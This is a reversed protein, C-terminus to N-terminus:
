ENSSGRKRQEALRQRRLMAAAQHITPKHRRRPWTDAGLFKKTYAVLWRHGQLAEAKSTYRMQIEHLRQFNTFVMSEWLVPKSGPLYAHNLVLFVTSVEVRKGYAAFSTKAVTRTKANGLLRAAARIDNTPVPNGHADLIYQLHWGQLHPSVPLPHEVGAEDILSVERVTMGLHEMARTLEAIFVEKDIDEDVFPSEDLPILCEIAEDSSEYLDIREILRGLSAALDDNSGM